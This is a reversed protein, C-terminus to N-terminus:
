RGKVAARLAQEVAALADKTRRHSSLNCGVIERTCCDLVSVSYTWSVESQRMKIPHAPKWEAASKGALIRGRRPRVLLGRKRMVRLVRKRNVPLGKKGKVM